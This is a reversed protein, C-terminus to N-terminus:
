FKLRVQIDIKVKNWCRSANTHPSEGESTVTVDDDSAEEEEQLVASNLTDKFKHVNVATSVTKGFAKKLEYEENLVEKFLVSGKSTAPKIQFQVSDTDISHIHEEFESWVSSCRGYDEAPQEPSDRQEPSWCHMSPLRSQRRGLGSCISLNNTQSAPLRHAMLSMKRIKEKMSVVHPQASGSWTSHRQVKQRESTNM